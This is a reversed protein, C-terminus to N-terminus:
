DWSRSEEATRNIETNNWVRHWTPFTLRKHRDNSVYGMVYQTNDMFAVHEAIHDSNFMGEKSPKRLSVSSRFTVDKNVRNAIQALEKPTAPTFFFEGQRIITKKSRLEKPRLIRHAERVSKVKKPLVCVFPTTHEDKGILLNMTTEPLGLVTDVLIIASTTFMGHLNNTTLYATRDLNKLAANLLSKIKKHESESISAEIDVNDDHVDESFSVGLNDIRTTRELIWDMVADAVQDVNAHELRQINKFRMAQAVRYYSMSFQVVHEITREPETICFTAQKHATSKSFEVTGEFLKGADVFLERNRSRNIMLRASNHRQKKYMKIPIGAKRAARVAQEMTMSKM